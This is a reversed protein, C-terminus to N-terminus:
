IKLLESAGVHLVQVIIELSVTRAGVTVVVVTTARRSTTVELAAATGGAVVV